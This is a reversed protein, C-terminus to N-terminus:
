IDTDNAAEMLRRQTSHIASEDIDSGIFRRGMRLAAEATAGGGMFPDLILDDRSTFRSIIDTMGSLSQGWHHHNKDNDNTDSKLVDGAWEGNYSGNVFWLVPKWFTNVKRQWLQVAQGGPTLYSLTWHYTIHPTMLNLIEPLYSQGVMVLLSGGPKLLISAVKALEEYVPLYERPYPPDTIICDVTGLEIQKATDVVSCHILRCKDVPLPADDPLPQRRAERAETSEQRRIKQELVKVDILQGPITEAKGIADVARSVEAESRAIVAKQRPKYTAPRAKGDKGTLKENKFLEDSSIVSHVKGISTHTADAIAQLTMGEQRMAKIHADRQEKTLHRRLINLARVHCRKQEETLGVRVLTPYDKIGLEKAIRIRHHGDLIAGTEDLEVPVLIGREAIDDKLRQYDDDPLPDFLQYKSPLMDMGDSGTKQVGAAAEDLNHM